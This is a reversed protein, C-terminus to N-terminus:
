CPRLTSRWACGTRRAPPRQTSSTPTGHKKPLACDGRDHRDRADADRAIRDQGSVAYLAVGHRQHCPHRGRRRGHRHVGGDPQRLHPGHRRGHAGATGVADDARRLAQRDAAGRDPGHLRQRHRLADRGRQHADAGADDPRARAGGTAARRFSVARQLVVLRVRHHAPGRLRLRIRQGQRIQRGHLRPQRTQRLRLRGRRQSFELFKKVVGGVAKFAEYGPEFRLVLLALLVQLAFGWAVTHWNIARLNASFAGAVGLFCCVGLASRGRPGLWAEGLYALGGLLLVGMLLAIRWSLPTPPPPPPPPLGDTQIGSAPDIQIGTQM